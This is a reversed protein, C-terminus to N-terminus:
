NNQYPAILTWGECGVASMVIAPINVMVMNAKVIIICNPRFYVCVVIRISGEECEGPNIYYQTAHM